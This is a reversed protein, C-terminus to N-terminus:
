RRIIPISLTLLSALILLIPNGTEHMPKEFGSEDSDRDLVDIEEEEYTENNLNPTDSTIYAENVKEGVTLAQTTIFLKVIGDEITLNGIDWIGTDPDFTGKTATHKIYKLGEPLKDHIKVNKAEDPGFNVAELIWTVYDGVYINEKYADNDLVLFAGTSNQSANSDSIQQASDSASLVEQQDAPATIELELDNIQNEDIEQANIASVSSIFIFAILLILVTRNKISEVGM